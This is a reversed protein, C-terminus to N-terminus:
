LGLDGVSTLDSESDFEAWRSPAPVGHVPFGSEILLQLAGTMDLKDRQHQELSARVRQLAAWGGPRFLLLGMYQGQIEQVSKPKQGIELIRADADIRFTEADELPDGFRAEWQRRWDLDYAVALEEGSRLLATVAASGYVIDSYTVLCPGAELWEGACALSTVMNTQEWRENHFERLGREALMERRYGTVIGIDDVGADHLAALQWDLLTRGQYQILCKPRNDTLSLMRSGRGAGLIIGKTMTRDKKKM